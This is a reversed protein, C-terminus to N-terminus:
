KIREDHLEERKSKGINDVQQDKGPLDEADHSDQKEKGFRYIVENPKVMNFHKRAVSEVYEMDTRLRSIEDILAQNEETLQRIRETYAQRELETHYLHLLGQEGFVLWAVIPGLICIVIIPIKWLKRKKYKKEPEM